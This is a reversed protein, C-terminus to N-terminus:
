NARANCKELQEAGIPQGAVSFSRLTGVEKALVECVIAPRSGSKPAACGADGCSWITDRLVIRTLPPKVAPDARYHSDALAPSAFLALGLIAPRLM